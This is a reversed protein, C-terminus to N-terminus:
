RGNFAPALGYNGTLFGGYARNAAEYGQLQNQRNLLSAAGTLYNNVAGYDNNTKAQQLNLNQQTAASQYASDASLGNRIQNGLDLRLNDDTKVLSDKASQATNAIESLGTSYNRQERGHTEIDASGGTLGRGALSFKMNRLADTRQTDLREKGLNFNADYAQQYVNERGKFMDDLKSLSEQLKKTNDEVSPQQAQPTPTQGGLYSLAAGAAIQGGTSNLADWATSGLSGLSGLAGLGGAAAAGTGITSGGMFASGTGLGGLGTGAGGGFAAGSGLGGIGGGAAAEGAGMFASGSGLGGAGATLGGGAGAGASGSGAAGAAAGAEAGAGGALAAGGAVAGAALAGGIVLQLMNPGTNIKSDWAYGYRGDPTLAVYNRKNNDAGGYVKIIPDGPNGSRLGAQIAEAPATGDDPIVDVRHRVTGNGDQSVSYFEPMSAYLNRIEAAYPSEGYPNAETPPNNLRYYEDARLLEQYQPWAQQIWGNMAQGVAAGSVQNGAADTLSVVQSAM